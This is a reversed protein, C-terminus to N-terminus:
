FRGKWLQTRLNSVLLRVNVNQELYLFTSSISSLIEDLDFLLYQGKIRLIQEKRDLNILEQHRLGVKSLYIDRFWGALINLNQRMDEKNEALLNDLHSNKLVFEDIVRNKEKLFDREKLKLAEGIRGESFYALFHAQDSDLHYDTKLNEELAARKLPYFKLIKCRSIITKFLLQPKASLLIILSDQPPEELIKLIANQAEATLNHADNVIFVKTKGEYPRLNIDIQLQRIQEIKIADSSEVDILHVDPHINKEIKLCSACADCSDPNNGLCNLAKALTRTVLKKGIGEPGIFLFSGNLCNNKIYEKLIQIPKDQGKIDSFSM